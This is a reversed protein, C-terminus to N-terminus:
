PQVIARDGDRDYREYRRFLVTVVEAPGGWRAYVVAWDPRDDRVAMRCNQNISGDPMRKATPRDVDPRNVIAEVDELTVGMEAMRERAHRSVQLGLEAERRRQLQRALDRPGPAGTV